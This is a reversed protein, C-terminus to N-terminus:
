VGLGRGRRNQRQLQGKEALVIIGGPLVCCVRVKDEVDAGEGCRLM